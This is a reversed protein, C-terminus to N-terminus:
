PQLHKAIQWSARSTSARSSWTGLRRALLALASTNAYKFNVHFVISKCYKIRQPPTENSSSLGILPLIVRFPSLCGGGPLPGVSIRVYNPQSARHIPYAIKVVVSTCSCFQGSGDESYESVWIVQQEDKVRGLLTPPLPSDNEDGLPEM